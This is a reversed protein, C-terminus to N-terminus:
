SNCYAVGFPLNQQYPIPRSSIQPEYFRISVFHRGVSIEPYAELGKSLSVRILRLHQQPDLLEQYFGHSAMKQHVPTSERVLRLLLGIATRIHQFEALWAKVTEIRIEEPLNLWYHYVPIDFCLGGGPTMLHLRLNNLLSVERLNQGIKGSSDIFSRSLEDLQKIVEYLKEKDTQPLNELRHLQTTQLSLEKALKSKLDPRDLLHLIHIITSITNRTGMFSCDEMQHEISFFLQELRLCARFTESLPQEYIILDNM